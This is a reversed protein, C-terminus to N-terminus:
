LPFSFLLRAKFSFVVVSDLLFIGLKCRERHLNEPVTSIKILYNKIVSLNEWSRIFRGQATESLLQSFGPIQVMITM